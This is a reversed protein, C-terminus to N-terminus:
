VLRIELRKGLASAYRFLTSIRMDKTHNELRSIASKTTHIEKAIMEQTKGVNERSEKLMLSLMFDEFGKEFEQKFESNKKLKKLHDDFTTFKDLKSM